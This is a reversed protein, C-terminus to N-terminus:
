SVYDCWIQLNIVINILCLLIKFLYHCLARCNNNFYLGLVTSGNCRLYTHVYTIISSMMKVNTHVLVFHHSASITICLAQFNIDVSSTCVICNACLVCISRHLVVRAFSFVSSCSDFQFSPTFEAVGSLHTTGAIM